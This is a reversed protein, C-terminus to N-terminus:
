GFRSPDILCYDFGFGLVANNARTSNRGLKVSISEARHRQGAALAAGIRAVFDREAHLYGLWKALKAEDAGPQPVAELQRITKAFATAARKFHTSAQKLKGAEVEGKAGKFIRKNALVNQECIPEARAVYEERGIEAAGALSALLGMALVGAATAAVKGRPSGQTM